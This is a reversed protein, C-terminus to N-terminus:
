ASQLDFKELFPSKSSFVAQRCKWVYFLLNQVDNIKKYGCNWFEIIFIKTNRDLLKSTREAPISGSSQLFNSKYKLSFIFQCAVSFDALCLWMLWYEDFKAEIRCIHTKTIWLTYRTISLWEILSYFLFFHLDDYKFNSNQQVHPAHVTKAGM